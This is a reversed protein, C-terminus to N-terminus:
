GKRLAPPDVGLLARRAARWVLEVAAALQIADRALCRVLLGGRALAGVAVAGSGDRVADAFAGADVPGIVVVTAFYPAGETHGLDNWGGDGEIVFRDVVLWGADDRVGLASELTAFRWAEGRAVRGASFADVLVLRAGEGMEVAISQRFASGAFPIAHDPVWELFAGEGVRLRAEQVAPPGSTRYIKTASPTTLCVHTGAGVDVDVVLCDGGVLGGTPNLVSVITAPDEVDLPALVQLPLTWGSRTLVTRDRRREFVLRLRGDRGVRAPAIV